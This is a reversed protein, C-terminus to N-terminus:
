RRIIEKTDSIIKKVILVMTIITVIYFTSILCIGMITKTLGAFEISTLLLDKM